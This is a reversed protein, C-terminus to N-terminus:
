RSAGYTFSGDPNPTLVGRLRGAPQAPAGSGSPKPQFAPPVEVRETTIGTGSLADAPIQQVREGWKKASQEAAKHALTALRDITQPELTIKGGVAKELFDRDANSFGSGSGLGSAKIAALTNSALQTSLTETNAITEADSAGALNLAKGVQLRIDAGTGTIIKGSALTERIQNARQALDPAKLATDRMESDAKAINSAFQEGYKKETSVSVNTVPASKKAKELQFAQVPAQAVPGASSPAFPQNAATVANAGATIDHGRATERLTGQDHLAKLRESEKLGANAFSQMLQPSFGQQAVAQKIHDVAEPKFIGQLTGFRLVTDLSQPDTASSLLAAGHQLKGMDTEFRAKDATATHAGIESDLKRNERDTKDLADVQKYLGKTLLAARRKAMDGGSEITAQRAADEDAMGRQAGQLQLNQLDQQGMASQLGAIKAYRELPDVQAIQAPKIGLILNPDIGM